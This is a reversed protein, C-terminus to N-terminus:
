GVSHCMNDCVSEMYEFKEILRTVIKKGPDSHVKFEKEFATAVTVRSKNSEYFTKVIFIREPITHRSM